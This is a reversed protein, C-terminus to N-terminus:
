KYTFLQNNKNRKLIIFKEYKKLENFIFEPCYIDFIESTILERTISTDKILASFLVNADVVIRIKEEGREM